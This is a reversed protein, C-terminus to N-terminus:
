YEYTWEHADQKFLSILKDTNVKCNDKDHEIFDFCSFLEIKFKRLESLAEDKEHELPIIGREVIKAMKEFRAFMEEYKEIEAELEAKCEYDLNPNALEIYHQITRM